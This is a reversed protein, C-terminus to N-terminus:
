ALSGRPAGCSRAAYCILAPLFRPFTHRLHQPDFSRMGRRLTIESSWAVRRWKEFESHVESTPVSKTKVTHEIRPTVPVLVLSWFGPLSSQPNAFYPLGRLAQRTSTDGFFDSPRICRKFTGAHCVGRSSWARTSGFRQTARSEWFNATFECARTSCHVTPPSLPSVSPLTM